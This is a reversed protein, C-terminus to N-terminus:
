PTRATNRHEDGGSDADDLPPISWLVANMVIVAILCAGISLWFGMDIGFLDLRGFLKMWILDWNPHM